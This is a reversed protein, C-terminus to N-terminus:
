RLLEPSARGPVAVGGREMRARFWIPSPNDPDRYDLDYLMMGLDRTEDLAATTADDVLRFRCDFERCGLYPQTVCQGRAARRRFMEEYKALPEGREGRGPVLRAYLRYGVDRLLLSGRQQRDDDAYLALTGPAGRMAALVAGTPVKSAVENRRITLWRIPKLVEIREVEWDIAPKWLIAEFIARAASPTIVDYSVREAKMEPRTFCALDGEIELCFTTM